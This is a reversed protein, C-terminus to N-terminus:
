EGIAFMRMYMHQNVFFHVELVISFSHSVLSNDMHLGRKIKVNHRVNNNINNINCVNVDCICKRNNNRMKYININISIILDFWTCSDHHDVSLTAVVVTILVIWLCVVCGSYCNHPPWLHQLILYISDQCYQDNGGNYM